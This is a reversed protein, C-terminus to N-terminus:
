HPGLNVQRSRLPSADPHAHVALTTEEAATVSLRLSTIFIGRPPFPSPGSSCGVTRSHHRASPRAFHRAKTTGACSASRPAIASIAPKKIRPRRTLLDM